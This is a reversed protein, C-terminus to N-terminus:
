CVIEIEKKFWKFLMKKARKEIVNVIMVRDYLELVRKITAIGALDEGIWKGFEKFDITGFRNHTNKYGQAIKLAKAVGIYVKVDLDKELARKIGEYPVKKGTIERELGFLGDRRFSVSLRNFFEVFEHLNVHKYSFALSIPKLTRAVVDLPLSAAGATFTGAIVFLISPYNIFLSLEGGLLLTVALVLFPSFLILISLIQFM